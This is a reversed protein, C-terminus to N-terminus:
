TCESRYKCLYVYIIWKHACKKKKKSQLSCSVGSILHSIHVVADICAFSTKHTIKMSNQEEETSALCKKVVGFLKAADYKTSCAAEVHYSNRMQMLQQYFHRQTISNCLPPCHYISVNHMHRCWSYSCCTVFSKTIRDQLRLSPWPNKCAGLLVEAAQKPKRLSWLHIRKIFVNHINQSPEWLAVVKWAAQLLMWHSHIGCPRCHATM